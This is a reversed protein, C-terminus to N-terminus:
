GGLSPVDPCVRCGQVGRGQSTVGWGTVRHVQACSTISVALRPTYHSRWRHDPDARNLCWSLVSACDPQSLQLWQRSKGRLGGDRGREREEM